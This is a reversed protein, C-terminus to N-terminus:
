GWAPMIAAHFIARRVQGYVPAGRWRSKVARQFNDDDDDDDDDVEFTVSSKFRKSIVFNENEKKTKQELVNIM